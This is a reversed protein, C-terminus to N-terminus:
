WEVSRKPSSSPRQCWTPRMRNGYGKVLYVPYGLVSLFFLESYIFRAFAAVGAYESEPMPYFIEDKEYNGTNKHHKRHSIRWSHFPVLILSHLIHGFFSNVSRYRSFSGHGCDHGLVFLAWMFFGTFFWFFPLYVANWTTGHAVYAGYYLVGIFFVDRAVYYLSLTLSSKFCRDPIVRKIDALSPIAADDVFHKRAFDADGAIKLSDSASRVQGHSRDSSAGDGPLFSAASPPSM